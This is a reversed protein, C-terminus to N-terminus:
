PGFFVLVIRKKWLTTLQTPSINRLGPPKCIIIFGSYEVESQKQKDKNLQVELGRRKEPHIHNSRGSQKRGDSLQTLYHKSYGTVMNLLPISIIIIIIIITTIHMLMKINRM